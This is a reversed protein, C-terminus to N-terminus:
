DWLPIGGVHWWGARPVRIEVEGSATVPFGVVAKGIEFVVEVVKAVDGGRRRGVEGVIEVIREFGGDLGVLLIEVEVDGALEVVSRHLLDNTRAAAHGVYYVASRCHVTLRVGRGRRLEVRHRM